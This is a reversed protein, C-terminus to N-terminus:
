EFLDYGFQTQDLNNLKEKYIKSSRRNKNKFCSKSDNEGYEFALALEETEGGRDGWNDFEALEPM